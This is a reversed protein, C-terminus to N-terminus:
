RLSGGLAARQSGTRQSRSKFNMERLEVRLTDTM